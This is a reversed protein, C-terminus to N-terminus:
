VVIGWFATNDRLREHGQSMFGYQGWHKMWGNDTFTRENPQDEHVWLENPAYFYWHGDPKLLRSLAIYCSREDVFHEVTGISVVWDFLKPKLIYQASAVDIKIIAAQPCTEASFKCAEASFDIGTCLPSHYTDWLAALFDGSGCGIDLVARNGLDPTVETIHKLHWLCDEYSTRWPGGMEHYKKEYWQALERNSEIVKREAMV